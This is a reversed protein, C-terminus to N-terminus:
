DSDAYATVQTLSGKRIMIGSGPSLKLYRLLRLALKHMFQSLFQVSYSIDPRTHSLYILKGVLKQYKTINQLESNSIKCLHNVSYSQEIPVNVPKLATLGFEALLELCYKRQSLCIGQDTKFVEIGLFYKLEGLDKILFKTKLLSKVSEVASVCNGTIVIDDVYVLLVVLMNGSNKVFMSYDNKSQIFGIDLLVSVLKKNWMRPAQKLGYLSKNLKCMRTEDKSFYGEPLAMYVEENLDGYLFANNIDLQFIPWSNNVALNLVCRVTVMKVVHSFTEDFDIGKKQNFGKAVLRAKYRDIEGTARYKIKYVWKCGIPKRGSPLDVLDWTNNRHLAEMESNMADVWHKGLVADRYWKPEISKNLSSVFSFKEHSLNSYNVVKELGYKVKGEIMYDQLRKPLTSSRTSRRVITEAEVNTQGRNGESLTIHEGNDANLGVESSSGGLVSPGEFSSSGLYEPTVRPQQDTVSTHTNVGEEDNPTNVSHPINPKTDDYMDFFNLHNIIETKLVTEKLVNSDKFPYITEYFKVDRSFFVQKLELNWLKYGKKNFSYGIQVSKHDSLPFPERHQKAKHCVDCPVDLNVSKLSLDNKLVELMQNAPHGLRTHWINYNDISNYCVKLKRTADGCFYLGDIQSGTMLVKKTRLNQLFCNNENFIVDLKNDSTLKYVSLLNVCYEPVVFVDRLIVDSRLKINGIKTVSANSGNPHKVSISFESVDLSDFVDKDDMVMHQNAGSDIVWGSDSSNSNFSSFCFVNRSYCSINNGGVNGSQHGKEDNLLGLLRNVQDPTLTCSTSNSSSGPKNVNANNNNPSFLKQYGRPRPGQPYGVVEFCREFTHGIKNCHTCKLNPNPGRMFKKKMDITQSSKSVFGVNIVQSKSLGNSNRHSEERSVISYAVKVTPLPERTLLNTRVPQYVDDKSAQCSCSPLQVMADFQKWYTNLKHYYESVSSGNQTLLNIKQYMNFVVSGDIKEYTEKLDQWVESVLQSYVQGVYLEESMSNLIWTLVISNCMEWHNKLVEDDTPKECTGNVFGLENKVQLALKM